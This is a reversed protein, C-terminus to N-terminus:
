HPYDQPRQQQHQPQNEVDEVARTTVTYISIYTSFVDGVMPTYTNNSNGLMIDNANNPKNHSIEHSATENNIDVQILHGLRM